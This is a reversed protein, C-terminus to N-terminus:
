LALEVIRRNGTDAVVLRGENTAAIGWPTWFQGEGRGTTGYRGVVEGTLTLLTIRGSKYEVVLMTENSLVRLDYPYELEVASAEGIVGLLEGTDTFAQVRNNIADAIYVTGAHWDLGSARQFQGVATGPQGFELVFEGSETFKQVRDNGGYESVYIHGSPDQMVDCPFIFEGPAEGEVGWIQLVEGAQSCIVVRHYHTDAIALRGDRLVEIGEPRGVSYEPMWWTRLLGGDPGYAIVRGADDLVFLNGEPSIDMSRPAPLFGEEVPLSEVRVPQLPLPSGSGVEDCGACCLALCLGLTASLAVRMGRRLLDGSPRHILRRRRGSEEHRVDVEGFAGCFRADDVLLPSTDAAEIHLREPRLALPQDCDVQLWAAAEDAALWNVPGLFQALEPTPPRDYLEAVAGQWIVRGEDLCLVSTAERVVTEPQHSAFVLSTGRAHCHERLVDWYHGLRLPDVHALPEDLVLVRADSALARTASVRAREGESLTAPRADAVGTLDFASLLRDAQAADGAAVLEVHQRVSLHPWLGDDPPSWYTSIPHRLSPTVLLSLSASDNEGDGRRRRGGDRQRETEGDGREITGRDPREFGVLLNLLSTKGAGSRGMVATIGTPIDVNVGDLRPRARGRLTVNTLKWLAGPM